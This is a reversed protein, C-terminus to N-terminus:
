TGPAKAAVNRHLLKVMFFDVMSGYPDAGMPEGRIVLVAEVGVADLAEKLKIGFIPHHIGDRPDADPPLPENRQNYMMYTPADGLGVHNIPSMEEILTRVTSAALEEHTAVGFALPLNPYLHTNGGPFWELMWEPDM